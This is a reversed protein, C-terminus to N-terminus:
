LVELLTMHKEFAQLWKVVTHGNSGDSKPTQGHWMTNLFHQCELRLPEITLYEPFTQLLREQPDFLQLKGQPLTDDLLASAKSGKITLRVQKAPHIWSAHIHGIANNTFEFEVHIVDVREDQHTRHGTSAVISRPEQNMLFCMMSLDHPALDWLVSKDNRHPNYNLRDSQIYQITGLAGEEILQKLRIVAPHYLLLHGVMLTKEHAKALECLELVEEARTAIPKEVYVHKGALLAKKALMYHTHSPTAIVIGGILENSLLAEFQDTVWIDPYQEKFSTVQQPSLDCIGGLAGLHHFNRVLNKGWHGAGVVAVAKKTNLPTEETGNQSPIDMM